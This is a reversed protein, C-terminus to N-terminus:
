YGYKLDTKLRKKDFHKHFEALRLANQADQQLKLTREADSLFSDRYVYSSRAYATALINYVFPLHKRFSRTPLYFTYQSNQRINFLSKEYPQIIDLYKKCTDANTFQERNLQAIIQVINVGKIAVDKLLVKLNNIIIPAIQKQFYEKGINKSYLYFTDFCRNVFVANYRQVNDFTNLRLLHSYSYKSNQGFYPNGKSQTLYNTIYSVSADRNRCLSVDIFGYNYVIKLIKRFKLTHRGSVCYLGHYHPRFDDPGYESCLFYKFKIDYKHYDIYRRLRKHFLQVDSVRPVKFGLCRKLNQNNYTFTAFYLQDSCKNEFFLRQRWESRRRSICETCKGCGVSFSEGHKNVIRPNLCM